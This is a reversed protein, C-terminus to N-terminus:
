EFNQKRIMKYKERIKGFDKARPGIITPTILIVLETKINSKLERRFAKGIYPIDGLLPIKSIKNNVVNGMLGAILVTEGESVTVITETERTDIAPRTAPALVPGGTRIAILSSVSPHVEMTIVGDSDVHPTVDLFVGYNFPNATTTTIVGGAGSASQQTEFFVDQTVSSLIANQGNLISVEPASLVTVTGQSELASILYSFDGTAKGIQFLDAVDGPRAENTPPVSGLAPALRSTIILPDTKGSLPGINKLTASWNIGFESGEKLTVELMKARIHIQTKVSTRFFDIYEEIKKMIPRYDTVTIYGVRKNITLKGTDPSMLAIIGSELEEWVDVTEEISLSGFSAGGAIEEGAGTVARVSSTTKRKSTSYVFEFVQTVMRPYSVRLITDEITYELGLPELLITLVKELPLDQFSVTVLGTADPDVVINYEPLERAITFLVNKLEMNTVSLSFFKEKKKVKDVMQILPMEQMPTIKEINEPAIQTVPVEKLEEKKEASICGALFIVATILITRKM